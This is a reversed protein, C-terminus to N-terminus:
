PQDDSFDTLDEGMFQKRKAEIIPALAARTRENAEDLRRRAATAKATNGVGSSELRTRLEAMQRLYETRQPEPLDKIYVPKAEVPAPLQIRANALATIREHMTRSPKIFKDLWECVESFTPFWKFHRAAAYLSKQSFCIAPYDLGSAYAALKEKADGVSMKPGATLIGLQSLWEAITNPQGIHGIPCRAMFADWLYMDDRAAEIIEPTIISPLNWTSYFTPTTNPDADLQADTIFKTRATSRVAAVLRRDLKPASAPLGPVAIAPLNTINTKTDM